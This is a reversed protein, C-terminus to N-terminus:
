VGTFLVDSLSKWDDLEPVGSLEPVSFLPDFFNSRLRPSKVSLFREHAKLLAASRDLLERGQRAVDNSSGGDNLDEM